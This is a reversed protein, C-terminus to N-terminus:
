KDYNWDGNRSQLSRAVDQLKSCQETKYELFIWHEPNPTFYLESIPHADPTFGWAAYVERARENTSRTSLFIRKCAGALIVFISSMLLKGLGRNQANPAVAFSPCKVDGVPYAATVLFEVYGLLTETEGDKAVVFFHIDESMSTDAFAGYDLVYIQRIVLPILAEVTHWDHAALADKFRKWDAQEQPPRMAFLTDFAACYEAHVHSATFTKLFQLEVPAYAAVALSAVSRLTKSFQPSTITVKEWELAVPQGRKDHASFAGASQAQPLNNLQRLWVSPPPLMAM